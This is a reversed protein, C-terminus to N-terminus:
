GVGVGFCLIGCIFVVDLNSGRWNLCLCLVMGYGSVVGM